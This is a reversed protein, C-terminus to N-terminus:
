PSPIIEKISKYLIVRDMMQYSFINRFIIRYM